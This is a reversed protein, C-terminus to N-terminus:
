YLFAPSNIKSFNQYDLNTNHYRIKITYDTLPREIISIRKNFSVGGWKSLGSQIRMSCWYNKEYDRNRLVLYFSDSESLTPWLSLDNAVTGNVYWDYDTGVELLAEGEYLSFDKPPFPVSITTSNGELLFFNEGVYNELIITEKNSLKEVLIIEKILAETESLLPSIKNTKIDCIGVIESTLLPAHQRGECEIFHDGKSCEAILTITKIRTPTFSIATELLHRSPVSLETTLGKNSLATISKIKLDTQIILQSLEVEFPWVYTIVIQTQQSASFYRSGESVFLDEISANNLINESPVLRRKPKALYFGDITEVVNDRIVEILQCNQLGIKEAELVGAGIISTEKIKRILDQNGKYSPTRIYNELSEILALEKQEDQNKRFAKIKM